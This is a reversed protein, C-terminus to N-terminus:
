KVSLDNWVSTSQRFHQPITHSSMKKSFNLFETKSCTAFYMLSCFQQSIIIRQCVLATVSLGSKCPCHHQHPHLKEALKLFSILNLTFCTIALKLSFYMQINQETKTENEQTWIMCHDPLVSPPQDRGSSVTQAPRGIWHRANEEPNATPSFIAAVSHSNQKADRLSCQDTSSITCSSAHHSLSHIQKVM